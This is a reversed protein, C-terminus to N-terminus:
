VNGTSNVLLHSWHNRLVSRKCLLKNLNNQLYSCMQIRIPFFELINRLIHINRHTDNQHTSFKVNHFIHYRMFIILLITYDAGLINKDM